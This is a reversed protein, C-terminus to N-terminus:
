SEGSVFHWAGLFCAATLLFAAIVVAWGSARAQHKEMGWGCDWALHRIGNALHFCFSFVLGAWILKAFGSSLIAQAARYSEAGAALAFLWYVFLISGLSLLVGTIRHIISLVMTYMPRYIQLHPSLPRARTTM